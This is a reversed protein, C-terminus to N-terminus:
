SGGCLCGAVVPGAVECIFRDWAFLSCCSADALARENGSDNDGQEQQSEVDDGQQNDNIAVTTQRQRHLRNTTMNLLHHLSEAILPMAVPGLALISIALADLDGSDNKWKLIDYAPDIKYFQILVSMLSYALYFVFQGVLSNVSFAVFKRNEFLTQLSYTLFPISHTIIEVQDEAKALDFGKCDSVICPLLKLLVWYLVTYTTTIGSVIQYFREMGSLKKSQNQPDALLPLSESESEPQAFYNRTAVFFDLSSRVVIAVLSWRTLALLYKWGGDANFVINTMLVGSNIIFSASSSIVDARSYPRDQRM